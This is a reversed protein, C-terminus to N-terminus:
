KLLNYFSGLIFIIVIILFAVCGITKISGRIGNGSNNKKIVELVEQDSCGKLKAMLINQVENIAVQYDSSSPSISNSSCNFEVKTKNQNISSLAMLITPTDIGKPRDFAYTGLENNIGNKKAIFYQPFMQLLFIIANKVEDLPFDVIINSNIPTSDTYIM